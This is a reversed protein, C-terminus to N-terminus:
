QEPQTNEEYEDPFDIQDPFLSRVFLAAEEQLPLTDRRESAGEAERDPQKSNSM